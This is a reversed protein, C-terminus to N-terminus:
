RRPCHQAVARAIAEPEAPKSFYARVHLRVARAASDPYASFIVIPLHALEDDARVQEVLAWGDMGPMVADVVLACPPWGQRLQRLADEGGSSARADFGATRLYFV